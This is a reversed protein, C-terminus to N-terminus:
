HCHRNHLILWETSTVSCWCMMGCEVTHGLVYACLPCLCKFLSSHRDVYMYRLICVNICMCIYIYIHLFLAHLVHIYICWEILPRLALEWQVDEPLKKLTELGLVHNM